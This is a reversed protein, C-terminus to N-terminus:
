LLNLLNSCHLLSILLIILTSLLTLAYNQRLFGAALHATESAQQVKTILQGAFPAIAYILVYDKPIQHTLSLSAICTPALFLAIGYVKGLNRFAKTQRPTIHGNSGSPASQEPKMQSLLFAIKLAILQCAIGFSFLLAQWQWISNILHFGLYGLLSFAVLKPLLSLLPRSRTLLGESIADLGVFTLSLYFIEPALRLKIAQFTLMLLIAAVGCFILALFPKLSDITKSRGRQKKNKKGSHKGIYRTLSIRCIYWILLMVIIPAALGIFLGIELASPCHPFLVAPLLAPILDFLQLVIPM